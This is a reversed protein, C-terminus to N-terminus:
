DEDELDEIMATIEEYLEQCEQKDLERNDIDKLIEQFEERMEHLQERQENQESSANKNKAIEEFIEDLAEEIDPLVVNEILEKLKMDCKKM